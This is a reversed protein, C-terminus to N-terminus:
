LKHLLYIQSSNLGETEFLEKGIKAQELDDASCVTQEAKLLCM